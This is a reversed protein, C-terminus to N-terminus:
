PNFWKTVTSKRKEDGLLIRAIESHSKGEIKLAIAAEMLQARVEKKSESIPERGQLSQSSPLREFVALANNRALEAFQLATQFDVEQCILLNEANEECQELKGDEFSRLVTLIMATRFSIVGIRNMIGSFIEKATEGKESLADMIAGKTEQFRAVFRQEQPETFEFTFTKNQLIEYLLVMKAATEQFVQMTKQNQARDFVNKFQYNGSLVLYNFRSLLGDEGDKVTPLLQSLTGSILVSLRLQPIVIDLKDTKRALLLMEHHFGKRLTDSLDMNETKSM